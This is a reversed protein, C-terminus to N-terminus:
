VLVRVGDPTEITASLRMDPATKFVVRDDKFGGDLLHALEEAEPHAIALELLRCGRDGMRGEPHPGEPWEIFTPYAGELPMEGTDAISILWTLDGRTIRTARGSEPHARTLASEIDDTGLVWTKLVPNGDFRDLDFWRPREPAQAEPDIAIVELFLDSGLSLLLNHTGMQRHRGGEPMDIGLTAKVHAAGEELTRALVTIHDLRFM